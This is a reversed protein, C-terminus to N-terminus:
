DQLVQWNEFRENGSESFTRSIWPQTVSVRTYWYLPIIAADEYCLLNEAEAYMEIRKAPDKETAAQKILEEFQASEYNIGGEGPNASGGMGFVERIFNNADPYDSCWGMRFVQPTDAGRVTDLYVKWEQNTLKAELGLANKWMQQIAEAIKQHGSSTNFMIAIELDGITMGKEDLYEQLLAKAEDPKYSPGLDPYTARTPAGVLGPRSFWGAPEQGAKLVNDVLGQRDVAMSLARRVRADDVYQAKTNFGYYYTCQVPAIRLLKSLEPDAKVRDLDASPVGTFDM